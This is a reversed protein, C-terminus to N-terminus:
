VHFLELAATFFFFSFLLISNYYPYYYYCFCGYYDYYYLLLLFLNTLFRSLFSARSQRGTSAVYFVSGTWNWHKHEFLLVHQYLLHQQWCLQNWLRVNEFDVSGTNASAAWGLHLTPDEVHCLVHRCAARYMGVYMIIQKRLINKLNCFSLFFFFFFFHLPSM